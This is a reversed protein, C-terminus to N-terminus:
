IVGQPDKAFFGVYVGFLGAILYVVNYFNNAPYGTFNVLMFPFAIGIVFAALFVLGSIKAYLRAGEIGSVFSVVGLVALAWHFANHIPAYFIVSGVVSQFSVELLAIILFAVGFILSYTKAM